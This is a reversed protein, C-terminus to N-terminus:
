RGYNNNNNSEYMNTLDPMMMNSLMTQMFQPDVNGQGQQQQQQMMMLMPLMNNMSNNNQQGGLGMMNMQMMEPSMSGQQYPNIGAKALTQYAKAIEDPTPAQSKDPSFDELEQYESPDVKQHNNLKDMIIKLKRKEIDEKATNSYLNDQLSKMFDSEEKKKEKKKANPKLQKKGTEALTALQSVPDIAIVKDYAAEAEIPKGIQVYSIGMYYYAIANGPNDKIVSEMTQITGLYDGNKYQKVGKVLLEQGNDAYALSTMSVVFIFSIIIKKLM